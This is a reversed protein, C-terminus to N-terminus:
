AYNIKEKIWLTTTKKTYKNNAGYVEQRISASPYLTNLEMSTKDAASDDVDPLMIDIKTSNYVERVWSNTAFCYYKFGNSYGTQGQTGGVSATGTSWDASALSNFQSVSPNIDLIDTTNQIGASTQTIVKEGSAIGALNVLNGNTDTMVMRNGTGKLTQLQLVGNPNLRM